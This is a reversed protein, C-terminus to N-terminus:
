VDISLPRSHLLMVARPDVEGSSDLNFRANRESPNGHSHGEIGFSRGVM